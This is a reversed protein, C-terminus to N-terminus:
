PIIGDLWAFSRKEKNTGTQRLGVGVNAAFASIPFVWCYGPLKEDFFHVQIQNSLDNVNEYYARVALMPEQLKEQLLGAARLLDTSAGTAMLVAPANYASLVAGRQATIQACDGEEKVSIVQSGGIFKAGADIAQQLIIRDLHLRRMVLLYDPYSTTKTSVAIRKGNHGIFELGNVRHALKDIRKLVGMEELAGVAGPTLGDGCTKDRPFESKDLLLVDIGTRALYYAAACGAPGAGVIIVEHASSSTLPYEQKPYKRKM